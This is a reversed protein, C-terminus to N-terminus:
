TLNSEVASRRQLRGWLIMVGLVEIEEIFLIDVYYFFLPFAQAAMGFLVLYNHTDIFPALVFYIAMMTFGRAYDLPDERVRQETNQLITDYTIEGGTQEKIESLVQATEQTDYSIGIHAGLSMVGLFYLSVGALIIRYRTLKKMIKSTFTKKYIRGYWGLKGHWSLITMMGLMGSTIGLTGIWHNGVYTVFLVRVGWVMGFSVALVLISELSSRNLKM